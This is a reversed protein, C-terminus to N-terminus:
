AQRGFVIVADPDVTISGLRMFRLHTHRRGQVWNEKGDFKRDDILDASHSIEALIDTLSAEALSISIPQGLHTGNLESAKM